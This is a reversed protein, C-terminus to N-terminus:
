KTSGFGRAGRETHPLSSKIEEIKPNLIKEFILQAIRDGKKVQYSKKAHNFLIVCINGRYDSDIVGAAVDIHKKWSLGSRPAVRGYCGEPIEIQIDTEIYGKGYGPIELDHASALDYGAAGVSAKSPATAHQTLKKFRLTPLPQPLMNNDDDDNNPQAAAALSNESNNWEPNNWYYDIACTKHFQSGSTPTECVPCNPYLLGDEELRSTSPTSTGTTTNDTDKFSM